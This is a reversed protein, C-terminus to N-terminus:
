KALSLRMLSMSLRSRPLPRSERSCGRHRRSSRRRLRQHRAHQEATSARPASQRRNSRTPRVIGGDAIEEDDSGGSETPLSINRNNLVSRVNEYNLYEPHSMWGFRLLEPVAKFARAIRVCREEITPEFLLFSDAADSDSDKWMWLHRAFIKECDAKSMAASMPRGGPGTVTKTVGCEYRSFGSEPLTGNFSTYKGAFTQVAPNYLHFFVGSHPDEISQTESRYVGCPDGFLYGASPNGPVNGVHNPKERCCMSLIAKLAGFSLPIVILPDEEGLGLPVGNRPIAKKTTAGDKYVSQLDRELNLQDGNQIIHGVAYSRGSPKPMAPFKADMIPNWAGSWAMRSGFYGQKKARDCASYLSQYPLDYFSVGEYTKTRNRAEIYTVPEYKLSSGEFGKTKPGIGAMQVQTIAESLSMGYLGAVGEANVRGPMLMNAPDEMDLMPWIRIITTGGEWVSLPVVRVNTVNPNIVIDGPFVGQRVGRTTSMDRVAVDKSKPILNRRRQETM